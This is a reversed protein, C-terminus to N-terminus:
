FALHWDCNVRDGTNLFKRGGEVKINPFNVGRWACLVWQIITLNLFCYTPEENLDSLVQPPPSSFFFGKQNIRSYGRHNIRNFDSCIEDGCIVSIRALYFARVKLVAGAQCNLRWRYERGIVAPQSPMIENVQMDSVSLLHSWGQHFFNGTPIWGGDQDPGRM